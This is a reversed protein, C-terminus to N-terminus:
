QYLDDLFNGDDKPKTPIPEGSVLPATPNLTKYLKLFDKMIYPPLMGGRETLTKKVNPFHKELIKEAKNVSSDFNEGGFESDNKLEDVWAKRQAKQNQERLQKIQKQAELEMDVYAKVQDNNLGNKLAFDLVKEQSYGEPLNKITETLEKKLKEEDVEEGEKKEEEPADDKKDVESDDESDETEGYGTAKKEVEVDDSPKEETSEGEESKPTDNPKEETDTEVSYGFEDTTPEETTTDPTTDTKTEEGYGSSTSQNSDTKSETSKTNESM